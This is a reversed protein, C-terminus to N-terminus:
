GPPINFGAMSFFRGHHSISVPEPVGARLLSPVGNANRVIDRDCQLGEPLIMTFTKYGEASPAVALTHVFDRCLLSQFAYREGHHLMTGAAHSGSLDLDICSFKQPAYSRELTRRHVIKYVAEKCSWLLWVLTFPDRSHLIWSREACTFIKSLFGKRQWRSQQAALRLDVIDNGIM